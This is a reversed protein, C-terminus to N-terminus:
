AYIYTAYRPSFEDHVGILMNVVIVGLGVILFGFTVIKNHSPIAMLNKSFSFIDKLEILEDTNNNM